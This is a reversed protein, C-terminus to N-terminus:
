CIGMPAIHCSDDENITTVIIEQIV